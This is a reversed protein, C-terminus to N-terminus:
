TRIRHQTHQRNPHYAKRLYKLAGLLFSFRNYYWAAHSKLRGFISKVIPLWLFFSLSRLIKVLASISLVTIYCSIIIFYKSFPNLLKKWRRKHYVFLIQKLYTCCSIRLNARYTLMWFILPNCDGTGAIGLEDVPISTIKNRVLLVM